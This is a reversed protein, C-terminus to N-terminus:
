TQAARVIRNMFFASPVSWLISRRGRLHSVGCQLTSRRGRSFSLSANVELTDHRDRSVGFHGGIKHSQLALVLM